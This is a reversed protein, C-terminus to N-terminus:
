GSLYNGRLHDHSILDTMRRYFTGPMQFQQQKQCLSLSSSPSLGVDVSIGAMVHSGRGCVPM